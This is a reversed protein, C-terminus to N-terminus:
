TRRAGHSAPGHPALRLSEPASKLNASALAATSPLELREDHHENAAKIAVRTAKGARCASEASSGRTGGYGSNRDGGM